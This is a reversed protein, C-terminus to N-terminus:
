FPRPTVSVQMLGDIEGPDNKDRVFSVTHEKGTAYWPDILKMEKIEFMRQGNIQIYEDYVAGALVYTHGRWVLLSPTGIRLRAIVADVDLPAGAQWQLKIRVKKGDPLTYDGDVTKAIADFGDFSDVCVEGGNARTVWFDQTLNVEQARLLTELGAAWAWNLCRQTSTAVKLDELQASQDPKLMMGPTGKKGANSSLSVVLVLTFILLTRM